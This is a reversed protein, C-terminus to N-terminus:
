AFGHGNGTGDRLANAVVAYPIELVAISATGEAPREGDLDVKWHLKVTRAKALARASPPMHQVSTCDLPAPLAAHSPSLFIRSPPIGGNMAKIVAEKTAWGVAMQEAIFHEDQRPIAVHMPSDHPVAVAVSSRALSPDSAQSSKNVSQLDPAEPAPLLLVECDSPTLFHRVAKPLGYRALLRQMRQVLCIDVGLGSCSRLLVPNPVKAQPDPDPDVDPGFRWNPEAMLGLAATCTLDPTSSATPAPTPSSTSAPDDSRWVLSSAVTHGSDHSLSLAM